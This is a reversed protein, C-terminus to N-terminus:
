FRSFFNGQTLNQLFHLIDTESHFSFFNTGYYSFHKTIPTITRRGLILPFCAVVNKLRPVLSDTAFELKNENSRGNWPQIKRDFLWFLSSFNLLSVPCVISPVSSTKSSRTFGPLKWNLRAKHISIYCRLSPTNQPWKWFYPISSGNIM